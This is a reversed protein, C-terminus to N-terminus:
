WQKVTNKELFCFGVQQQVTNSKVSLMEAEDLSKNLLLAV